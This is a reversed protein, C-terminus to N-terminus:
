STLFDEFDLQIKVNGGAESDEVDEYFSLRLGFLAVPNVSCLRAKSVIPILSM